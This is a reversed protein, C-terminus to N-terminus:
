SVWALGRGRAQLKLRKVCEGVSCHTLLTRTIAGLGRSVGLTWLCGKAVEQTPADCRGSNLLAQIHQM